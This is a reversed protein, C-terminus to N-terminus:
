EPEQIRRVTLKLNMDIMGDQAPGTDNASSVIEVDGADLANLLNRMATVADIPNIKATTCDSHHEGGDWLPAKCQPCYESTVNGRYNDSVVSSNNKLFLDSARHLDYGHAGDLWGTLLRVAEALRGRLEERETHAADYGAKWGENYESM